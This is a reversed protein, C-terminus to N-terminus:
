IGKVIKFTEVPWGIEGVQGNKAKPFSAGPADRNLYSIQSTIERSRAGIGVMQFDSQVAVRHDRSGNPGTFLVPGQFARWSQHSPTPLERQTPAHESLYSKETSHTATSHTSRPRDEM